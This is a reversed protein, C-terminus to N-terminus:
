HKQSRRYVHVIRAISINMLSFIIFGSLALLLTNSLFLSSAVRFLTNGLAFILLSVIIARAKSWPRVYPLPAQYM